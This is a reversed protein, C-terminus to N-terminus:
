RSGDNAPLEVDVCNRSARRESCESTRELPELARTEDIRLVADFQEPLRLSRFGPTMCYPKMVRPCVAASASVNERPVTGHYTPFGVSVCEGAHQQRM